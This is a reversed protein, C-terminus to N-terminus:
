GKKEERKEDKKKEEKKDDSKKEDDKKGGATAVKDETLIVAYQVRLDQFVTKSLPTETPRVLTLEVPLPGPGQTGEPGVAPAPLLGAASLQARTNPLGSVPNQEGSARYSIREIQAEGEGSNLGTVAPALPGHTSQCGASGLCAGLVAWLAALLRRQGRILM